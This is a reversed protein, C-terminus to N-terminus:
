RAGADGPRWGTDESTRKVIFPHSRRGKAFCFGGSPLMLAIDMMPWVM